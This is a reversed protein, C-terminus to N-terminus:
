HLTGKDFQISAATDTDLGLLDKLHPWQWSLNHFSFLTSWPYKFFCIGTMFM